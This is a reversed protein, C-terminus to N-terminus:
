DDLVFKKLIEDIFDWGKDSCVFYQGNNILLGEDICTTLTKELSLINLGTMNQYHEATFGSKLRLQNMLFELPLEKVSIKTMTASCNKLYQKPDKFKTTRIINDPALLSIKGHAGAGIGLYDGFKWYNINHQCTANKKAYASVEYQQYGNDALMKQAPIQAAIIQEDEPLKPPFKYFYTNPELTLQYWSIHSPKLNIATQIDALVEQNTQTPLGFMLDINLNDFGAQQAIEVAAVAEQSSHIRGLKELHRSNFSQVGISIRNIGIKRYAYFQKSELKSPNAELTIELNDALDIQEAIGTLLQELASASFLSPTGGGIFLSSVTRPNDLLCLDARLDNLLTAVYQQEPLTTKLPHSNFDCYPCKSLCWPLHIYLSFTNLTFM